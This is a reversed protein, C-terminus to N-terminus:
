GILQLGIALASVVIALILPLAATLGNPRGGLAAALLAKFATNLLIPITLAVAAGSGDLTNAPLRSFTIIAADVDAVGTLALLAGAGVDGFSNLAWRCAISLIAVLAALIFAPRLDLPNGLKLDAGQYETSERFARRVFPVTVIMAPVIAAAIRGLITPALLAVMVMVRALMVASAVAIGGALQRNPAGKGMRRALAATVATSSVMAGCAATILLGRGPGLRRALMYGSFSLGSVLVVVFWLDRPNIANYPGMQRSPLLPLIVLAVVGFRAIATLERQELGALWGHLRARSALLITILAAGALAVLGHGSAALMGLSITALAAVAGTASASIRQSLQAVYGYAIVFATTAAIIAGLIPPSLVTIAGVLGLLGFTRMGAVRSGAEGTRSSWGRETGILLGCALAQGIAMLTPYVDTGVVEAV